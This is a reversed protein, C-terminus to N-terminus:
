SSGIFRIKQIAGKRWPAIYSSTEPKESHIALRPDPDLATMRQPSRWRGSHPAFRVLACAARDSTIDVGCRRPYRWEAAFSGTLPCEQGELSAKAIRDNGACALSTRTAPTLEVPRRLVKTKKSLHLTLSLTDDASMKYPEVSIPSTPDNAVRLTVSNLQAANQGHMTMSKEVDPWLPRCEAVQDRETENQASASPVRLSKEHDRLWDSTGSLQAFV